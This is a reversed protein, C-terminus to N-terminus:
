VYKAHKLKVVATILSQHLTWMPKDTFGDTSSATSPANGKSESKRNVNWIHATMVSSAHTTLSQAFHYFSTM